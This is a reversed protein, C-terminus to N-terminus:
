PIAQGLQEILQEIGPHRETPPETDHMTAKEFPIECLIEFVEQIHEEDLELKMAEKRDRMQRLRQMSSTSVHRYQEHVKRKPPFERRRM